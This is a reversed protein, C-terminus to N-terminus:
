RLSLLFAVHEAHEQLLHEKPLWQEVGPFIGLWASFTFFTLTTSILIIPFNELFNSGKGAGERKDLMTALELRERKTIKVDEAPVIFDFGVCCPSRYM